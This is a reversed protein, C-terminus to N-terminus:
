NKQSSESIFREFLDSALNELRVLSTRGTSSRYPYDSFVFSTDIIIGLQIHGCEQCMVLDLPYFFSNSIKDEVLKNALPTPGLNVIVQFRDSKCM